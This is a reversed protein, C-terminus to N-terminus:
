SSTLLSLQTPAARRPTRPRSRRPTPTPAAVLLDTGNLRYRGPRFRGRADRDQIAEAVGARVLSAIARQATNKAVGLDAAISRVSATSTHGDDSRELLCEFVCWAVPGLSRRTAAARPGAVMVGSM